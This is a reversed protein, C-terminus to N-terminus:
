PVEDGNEQTKALLKRRKDPHKVFNYKSVYKLLKFAGKLLCKPEM